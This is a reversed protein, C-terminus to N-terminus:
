DAQPLVQITIQTDDLTVRLDCNLQTAVLHALEFQIDRSQIEAINEGSEVSKWVLSDAKIRGTGILEWGHSTTYISLEGGYPLSFEACQILLFLLKATARPIDGEIRWDPSVRKDAFYRALVQQAANQGLQAGSAAAGFAIRFFEVRANAAKISDNLLLLEPSPGVGSLELLELGNSIAGLPSALDHCIRSSVFATLDPKKTYM